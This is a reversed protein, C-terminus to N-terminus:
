RAARSRPHCIKMVESLHTRDINTYIETTRIDSHGLLEQVVRLDAGGELLHTAFSHRLLHPHIRGALGARVASSSVIQWVSMRSLPKGRYSLFLNRYLRRGTLRPRGKEIYSILARRAHGGLPVIREKGGKGTPRVYGELLFVRDPTLDILESERLGCGYALEMLARNRLSLPDDGEWAEVLSTAQEVTLASPLNTRGRPPRLFTSPDDDRLRERALYRFFGRLSSLKRRLSRLALQREALHLAYASLDDRAADALNRGTEDFWDSAEELDRGYAEVTRPSLSRELAIHDLFGCIDENM